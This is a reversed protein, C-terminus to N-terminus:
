YYYINSILKFKLETFDGETIDEFYSYLFCLTIVKLVTDGLTEM